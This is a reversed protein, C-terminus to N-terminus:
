RFAVRGHPKLRRTHIRATDKITTSRTNTQLTISHTQLASAFYGLGSGLGSPHGVPGWPAKIPPRPKTVSERLKRTRM